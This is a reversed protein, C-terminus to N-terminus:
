SAEELFAREIERVLEARTLFGDRFSAEADFVASPLYPDHATTDGSCIQEAIREADALARDQAMTIMTLEKGM